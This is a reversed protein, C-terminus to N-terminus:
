PFPAVPSRLSARRRLMRVGLVVAVLASLTAVSAFVMDVTMSAGWFAYPIGAGVANATGLALLAWGTWKPYVDGKVIAVGFLALSGWYLMVMLGFVPHSVLSLGIVFGYISAQDAEAAVEMASLAVARGMGELGFDLTFLTTGAVVGYFGLRAWARSSGSGVSQYLGAFGVALAWMGSALLLHVLEWYGGKTDSIMQIVAHYDAPDGVRPHAANAAIVLFAGAIFFAGGIRELVASESRVDSQLEM